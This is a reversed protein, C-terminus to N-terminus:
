AKCLLDVGGMAEGVGAFSKRPVWATPMGMWAAAANTKMAIKIVFVNRANLKLIERFESEGRPAASAIHDTRTAVRGGGPRSWTRRISAKRRPSVTSGVAGAQALLSAGFPLRILM